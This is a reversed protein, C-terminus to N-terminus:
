KLEKLLKVEDYELHCMGKEDRVLHSKPKPPLVDPNDKIMLVEYHTHGNEDPIIRAKLQGHRIFRRVTAAKMKFYGDFEWVAYWSDHDHCVEAPIINNEVARHCSPCKIGNQDYWCVAGEVQEWCVCCTYPGGELHIGKPSDKLKEDWQRKKDEGDYVVRYLNLLNTAQELAEQDSLDQGYKKKFISKFEEIAEKSPM